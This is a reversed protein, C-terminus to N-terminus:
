YTWDPSKETAASKSIEGAATGHAAGGPEPEEHQVNRILREIVGNIHDVDRIIMDTYRKLATQNEARENVLQAFGRISCLPNRVNHAISAALDNMGTNHTTRSAADRLQGPCPLNEFEVSIGRVPGDENRLPTTSVMMRLNKGAANVFSVNRRNVPVNELLSLSILDRLQPNKHDGIFVEDFKRNRLERAGCELLTEADSSVFRIKGNVDITIMGGPSGHIIFQNLALIMENLATTLQAFEGPGQLPLTATFDGEAIKRTASRFKVLQRNIAYALISGAILAGAAAIVTAVVLSNMAQHIMLSNPLRRPNLLLDQGLYIALLGFGLVLLTTFFPIAVILRLHTRKDLHFFGDSNKPEKM